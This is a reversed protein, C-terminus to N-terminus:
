NVPYYVLCFIVCTSFYYVMFETINYLQFKTEFLIFHLFAGPILYSYIELCLVTLASSYNFHNERGVEVKLLSLVNTYM